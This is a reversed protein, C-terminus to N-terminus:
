RSVRLQKWTTKACWKGELAKTTKMEKGLSCIYVIIVFRVNTLAGGCEGECVSYKLIEGEMRRPRVIACLFSIVNVILHILIFYFM